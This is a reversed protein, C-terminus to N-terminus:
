GILHKCCRGCHSEMQWMDVYILPMVYAMINPMVDALVIIAIVDIM